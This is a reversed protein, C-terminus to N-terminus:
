SAVRHRFAAAVFASHRSLGAAVVRTLAAVTEILDGPHDKIM